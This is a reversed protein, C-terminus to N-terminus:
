AEGKLRKIENDLITRVQSLAENYGSEEAGCAVNWCNQDEKHCQELKKEPLEAAIAELKKTFLGNIEQVFQDEDIHLEDSDPDKGARVAVYIARIDRHTNSTM